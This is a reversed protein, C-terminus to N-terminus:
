DSAVTLPNSIPAIPSEDKPSRKWFQFSSPRYYDKTKAWGDSLAAKFGKERILGLGKGILNKTFVKYGILLGAGLATLGATWALLTRVIHSEKKEPKHLGQLPPRGGGMFADLPAEPFFVPLGLPNPNGNPNSWAYGAGTPPINFSM